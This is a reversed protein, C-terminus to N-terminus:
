YQCRIWRAYIYERNQIIDSQNKKKNDRNDVVSKSRHIDKDIHSQQAHKSKLSQIFKKYTDLLFSM